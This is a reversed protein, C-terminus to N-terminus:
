EDGVVFPVHDAQVVIKKEITPDEYDGALTRAAFRVNELEIKRIEAQAKRVDLARHFLKFDELLPHAGVLAEIYLSTTPVIVLDSDGRRATLRAIMAERIDAARKKFLQPDKRKLCSALETLQDVTLGSLTDPDHVTLEEGLEVYDQMMHLTLANGTKLAFMMYNGKYGLVEDLEAVDVLKKWTLPSDAPLPLSTTATAEATLADTVDTRKKVAATSTGSPPDVWPVKVDYLRFFRQDPPEHIWISQMYYLINQKVHVRLRDIAALHNYHSRVAESLKDIAVQLATVALSFQDLLRAKERDARERADTTYDVMAQAADVAGTDTDGTLGLPDFFLRKVTNFLGDGQQAAGLSRVSDLVAQQDAQLLDVQARLQQGLSEVVGAQTQANSLLIGITIEAGVLSTTLYDLAPRFSDDLISRRLVWDHAILWSDDIEHPAPVENAVLVVPVLQHLRESLRYTRQLEYFLYTVPVEDNPNQIEHFTTEDLESVGTTDIELRHHRKYEQASKQVDERISSKTRQSEKDESRKAVANATVEWIGKKGFTSNATLEFHSNKKAKDVIESEVRGTNTRESSHNLLNDDLEKATRTMKQVRRCTYRRIERPALPITSVLDGVQYSQPQWRQRYTIALGYNISDKAFVDFAYPEHLRKELDKLLHDLRAPLSSGGNGSADMGRLASSPALASIGLRGNGSPPTLM